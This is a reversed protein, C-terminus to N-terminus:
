PAPAATSPSELVASVRDARQFAVALLAPAVLIDAVFATVIGLAAILGFVVTNAMSALGAMVLFGSSLVLSTFLLASGTTSLTRRVAEGVDGTQDFDRQFRHMFHITDDVALGIILSGIVINSADLPVGCLGMVGLIAIVPLLNPVMSLLGVRIRGILLIMLPTIVLLAIVYSRVLSTTMASLARAMLPAMGTMAFPLGEGLIQEFGYEIRSLFRPYLTGDLMPVRLTIRAHRFQSDTIEELDDSGSNEFLLLEQAVLERQDPVLYHEPQNENLAQNTEKIIDLISITKGVFIEGEDLVEAYAMAVELRDLVGPEHLGNERGSDVLVELTNTGRMDHDIREAAIRVPDTRPFWKLPQHSFQLQAIGICMLLIFSGTAILTWRPYRVGLEGTWLLLRKLVSRGSRRIVGVRLPLIALLAPLLGFTFFLTLVVGISATIGLHTIPTISAALFSLMGAATTLNTMVIAFGSHGFAYALASEVDTGANLRQYTIVLVHVANCVGVTMIFIPLMQLPLSGPVGLCVMVGLTSLLAATVVTFPLLVGSVRRFLLLLLGAITLAAMGIFGRVDRRLADNLRQGTVIEGAVYIPFDPAEFRAVMASLAADIETKEERTLFEPEHALAAASEPSDFGVLAEADGGLSSYTVPKIMITTLRADESLLLNRYVPNALARRELERLEAESEPWAAFLEEVILADEEGRTQRANLISTIEEIHPLGAELARHFARLRELFDLEFVEPPAIAILIHDDQGFQNRFERYLKSAPDRKLLFSETSNDFTIHPIWATWGSAFLLSVLLVWWRHRFVFRGWREFGLEVRDRLTM